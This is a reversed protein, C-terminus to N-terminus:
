QWNEGEVNEETMEGEGEGEGDSEFGDGEQQEQEQNQAAAQAAAAEEAATTGDLAAKAESKPVCVIISRGYGDYYNCTSMTLVHKTGSIIQAADDRKTVAKELLESLYKRFEDNSGFRFRRVNTDTDQTYYLMLPELEYANQETIYWLTPTDNFVQPDDLMALRQFMSGDQMHHGYIISQQDLMGPNTSEWDLFVQGGISWEGTAATRLYQDNDVGQYVPYNIVTDPVYLWGCVDDNVEKLAAWDIDPYPKVADPEVVTAYKQLETNIQDQKWYRFQAFGWMGGAVVLLAVGVVILVTSLTQSNFRKKNGTDKDQNHANGSRSGRSQAANSAHSGASRRASITPRVGEAKPTAPRAHSGGSSQARTATHTEVPQSNQVPQGQQAEQAPEESARMHRSAM